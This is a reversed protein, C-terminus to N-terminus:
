VDQTKGAEYKGRWGWEKEGVYMRNYEELIYM